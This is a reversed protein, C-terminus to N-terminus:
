RKRRRRASSKRAFPKKAHLLPMRCVHGQAELHELTVGESLAGTATLLKKEVLHRAPVSSSYGHRGFFESVNRELVVRKFYATNKFGFSRSFVLFLYAVFSWFAFISLFVLDLLLLPYVGAKFVLFFGTALSISFSILGELFMLDKARGEMLSYSTSFFYYASYLFVASGAAGFVLETNM